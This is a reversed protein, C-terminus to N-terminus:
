MAMLSSGVREALTASPGDWRRVAAYASASPCYIPFGVTCGREPREPVVEHVVFHSRDDGSHVCLQTPEAPFTTV